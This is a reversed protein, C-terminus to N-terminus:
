ATFSEAWALAAIHCNNVVKPDFSFANSLAIMKDDEYEECAEALQLFPSLLGTKHLLADNIPESLHVKDLVDEMPARIIVDLLSFVGLVFLSDWDKKDVYNKGLLEIFRGRTIATKILAPSTPTDSANILLLTLWRYLQKRGLIMLAHNISTIECSLGFGISNIYRLLKFTLTVERKFVREIEDNDADSSVKNLIDLVGDFSPTIVKQVFTEPKAFYYGQFVKFGAQKCFEYEAITEVKEAVMNVKPAVAYYKALLSILDLERALQIDIKIYNAIAILAKSAGHAHPNDLAIKFGRSQLYQCRKVVDESSGVSRLIELVTSHPPMIEILENNLMEISVNIFTLKNGLISHMDMDGTANILVRMCAQLQDEFVASKADESHRFFLEYGIINEALDMIPQRGIFAKEETPLGNMTKALNDFRHNAM